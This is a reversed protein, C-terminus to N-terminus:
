TKTYLIQTKVESKPLLVSAISIVEQTSMVAGGGGAPGNTYLTEVERGIIKAEEMTKARGAVRIRVEPIQDISKEFPTIASIGILDFRLDSFNYKELRKRVIDIALRAREVGNAGGYSIQGEGMYGNHYGVSVKYTKTPVKGSAHSFQVKNNSIEDFTVQSFDAICDPTLYASPDHIEYLLQETCTAANILGGTNEVKSLYGEGSENVEVFPFGINWLEPVEKKGPDAYYGGCVQTACELLHGVLTGKGLKDADDLNWGFEYVMPALFLAPDAVRGTIIIDAGNELAEIIGSVGLYANASIIKDTLNSLPQGTEMIKLHRYKHIIDLVDDGLVAAIKLDKIGKERAIKKVVEVAAKPNAAGMNTIVKVGYKQALSLVENMRYELLYNYGKAPNNKKEKQALAITREALCEFCIYDLNGHKMLTIAPDLRDGGYGAGSGIRIKKM